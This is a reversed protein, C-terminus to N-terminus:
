LEGHRRLDPAYYDHHYKHNFGTVRGGPPIKSKFPVNPHKRLHLFSAATVPVNGGMRWILYLERVSNDLTWPDMKMVWSGVWGVYQFVQIKAHVKNQSNQSRPSKM